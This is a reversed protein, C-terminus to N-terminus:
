NVEWNSRKVLSETNSEVSTDYKRITSNTTYEGKFVDKFVGPNESIITNTIDKDYTINAKRSSEITINGTTIITGKFDIDDYITINRNTIIIGKGEGNKFDITYGGNFSEIKNTLYDAGRIDLRDVYRSGSMDIYILNGNDDFKRIADNKNINIEENLPKIENVRNNFKDKIDNIEQSKNLVDNTNVMIKGDSYVAGVSTTDNPLSVGNKNISNHEQAMKKFYEVKEDLTLENGNRSDVLQLPNYYKFTVGTGDDYTYAIYNGKTSVSEGTQYGTGETNIYATGMIVAKEGIKIQSDKSSEGIHKSNIIIASSSERRGTLTDINTIDNIGYYGDNLIIKSGEGNLILDNHTYVPYNSVINSNNIVDKGFVKGDKAQIENILSYIGLNGTYVGYNSNLADKNKGVNLNANSGNLIISQKSILDGNYSNMTSGNGINIGTIFNKDDPNYGQDKPPIYAKFSDESNLNAAAVVGGDVNLISNSDLNVNRGVILGKAMANYVPIKEEYYVGNFDPVKINLTLSVDKYSTDKVKFKSEFRLSLVKGQEKIDEFTLNNNISPETKESAKLEEGNLQILSITYNNKTKDDVSKLIDNNVLVNGNEYKFINKLNEEVYKEYVPKFIENEKKDLADGTVGLLENNNAVADNGEKVAEQTINEIYAEVEDLGSESMYLNETRKTELITTKYNVLSLSVIATGIVSVIALVVIVYALTAGSKKRRFNM